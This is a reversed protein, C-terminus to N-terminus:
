SAPVARATADAFFVWLMLATLLYVAYNEVGDDFRGVYSFVAYLVAFLSLPRLLAWM